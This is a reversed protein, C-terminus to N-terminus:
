HNLDWYHEGFGGNKDAWRVQFYFIFRSAEFEEFYNRKMM